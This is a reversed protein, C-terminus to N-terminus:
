GHHKGGCGCLLGPIRWDNHEKCYTVTVYDTAIDLGRQLRDIEDLAILLLRGPELLEWHLRESKERLKNTSTEMM